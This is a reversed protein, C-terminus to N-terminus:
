HGGYKKFIRKIWKHDHIESIVFAISFIIIVYIIADISDRGQREWYVDRLYLWLAFEDITLAAGIGFLIAMIHRIRDSAWFSIGIYGSFILLFIGPVLHHIHLLGNQNPLFGAKQLHTVSRVIGFTILFSLLILIQALRKSNKIKVIISKFANIM